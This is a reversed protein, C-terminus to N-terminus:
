LQLVLVLIRITTCSYLYYNFKTSTSTGHITGTSFKTGIQGGKIIMYLPVAVIKIKFDQFFM